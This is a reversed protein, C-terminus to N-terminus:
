AAFKRRAEAVRTKLNALETRIPTLAEDLLGELAAIDDTLKQLEPPVKLPGFTEARVAAVLDTALGTEEAIKADSYGGGYCGSEADFHTSILNFMRAQAMVAKPTPQAMEEEQPPAQKPAKCAPCKCPDLDWRQQRFKRDLEDPGCLKRVKVEGTRRCGRTLCRLRAVISHGSQGEPRTTVSRGGVEDRYLHGRPHGKAMEIEAPNLDPRLVEVPYGTREAEAALRKIPIARGVKPDPSLRGLAQRPKILGVMEAVIRGVEARTMESPAVASDLTLTVGAREAVGDGGASIHQEIARKAAKPSRRAAKAIDVLTLMGDKCDAITGRNAQVFAVAAAAGFRDDLKM